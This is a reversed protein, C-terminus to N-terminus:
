AAERFLRTLSAVTVRHCNEVYITLTERFGACMTCLDAELWDCGGACPRLYTCGCIRCRPEQSRKRKPRAKPKM